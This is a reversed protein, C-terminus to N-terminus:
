PSPARPSTTEVLVKLRDLGKGFEPGLTTEISKVFFRAPLNWGVDGRDVWTVTTAGVTAGLSIEGTGDFHEIVSRYAVGSQPTASTLTITGRGMTKGEWSMTQGAGPKGEFRWTSTPDTTANWFTWGSWRNLDGLHAFVQEPRAAITVSREVRWDSRLLLGGGVVIALMAGLVVAFFKLMGVM